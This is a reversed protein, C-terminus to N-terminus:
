NRKRRMYVSIGLLAAVSVAVATLYVWLNTRDGTDPGGGGPKVRCTNTIIMNGQNRDNVSVTYGASTGIEKVTYRIKKGDKVAPLDSWTKTWKNGKNLVAEQGADAGDAMLRVRIQKPRKGYKDNKDNWHKTVTASARDAAHTNIIDYGDIETRYGPVSDETVTYVIERGDDFKPLNRFSYKWGDEESITKEAVEKGDALLNVTVSKPRVGDRNNEDKWTKTGSVSTLAKKNTITKITAEDETVTVEYPTSDLEYGTPATVEVISYKGPVLKGSTAEGQADTTLTFSSNNELNTIKFEAGALPISHDKEDVKLIRIKSMLNGDGSGSSSASTYSAQVTKDVNSGTASAKNRLTTGPIYTTKYSLQYQKGDVINGMDITFKTGNDTIKLKGDLSIEQITEINFGNADYKVEKLVFSDPIYHMGGLDGNKVSLEDSYVFNTYNGKIHNIRVYWQAVDDGDRSAEGWKGIVEDKLGTPGTIPVSITTVQSGISVSFENTEDNKIKTFHAQLQMKGKINYRNEVYDTFTVKVTGGGDSGPSVVATGIVNGDPATLNFHTAATNKPFVFNDPLKVTFYDGEKLTNGYASADWNMNVYFRENWEFSTATSTSYHSINFDTIKVETRETADEAHVPAVGQWLIGGMLCIALLCGGLIMGAKKLWIKRHM